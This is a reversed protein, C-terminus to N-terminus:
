LKIPESHSKKSENIWSKIEDAAENGVWAGYFSELMAKTKEDHFQFNAPFKSDTGLNASVTVPHIQKSESSRTKFMKLFAHLGQNVADAISINNLRAYAAMENYTWKDLTVANMIKINETLCHLTVAKGEM